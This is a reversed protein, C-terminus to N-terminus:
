SWEGGSTLGTKKRWFYCLDRILVQTSQPATTTAVVHRVMRDSFVLGALTLSCDIGQLNSRLIPVVHM